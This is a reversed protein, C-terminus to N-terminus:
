DTEDRDRRKRSPPDWGGSGAAMARGYAALLGEAKGPHRKAWRAMLVVALAYPVTFAALAILGWLWSGALAKALLVLAAGGVVM